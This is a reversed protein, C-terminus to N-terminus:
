DRDGDRERWYRETESEAPDGDRERELELALPDAYSGRARAGAIRVLACASVVAAPYQALEWDDAAVLESMERYADAGLKAVEGLPWEAPATV